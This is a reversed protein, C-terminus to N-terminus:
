QGAGAPAASESATPQSRFKRAMREAALLEGSIVNQQIRRNVDGIQAHLMMHLDITATAEQTVVRSVAEMSQLVDLVPRLDVQMGGPFVGGNGLQAATQSLRESAMAQGILLSMSDILAAAAGPYVAAVNLAQYVPLDTSEILKKAAASIDNGAAIAVVADRLTNHVTPYYGSFSPMVQVLSLKQMSLCHVYEDCVCISPVEYSGSATRAGGVAKGMLAECHKSIQANAGAGAGASVAADASTNWGCLFFGWLLSVSSTPAYTCSTSAARAGDESASAGTSGASVAGGCVATDDVVETGIVNLVALKDFYAAHLPSDSGTASASPRTENLGSLLRWTLNGRKQAAAAQAKQEETAGPMMDNLDSKLQTIAEKANRCMSSMAGLFDSSTGSASVSAGCVSLKEGDAGAWKAVMAGLAEGAKCGDMAMKAAQQALQQMLGLVAECIPCLSKIALNVVFGIAGQSINEIFREIQEGDIYSFGGFHASIGGCGASLTPPTVSLLTVNNGSTDFKVNFGGSTFIHRGAAQYRSPSSASLATDSGGLGSLISSLDAASLPGSWVVLSAVVTLMSIVRRYVQLLKSM